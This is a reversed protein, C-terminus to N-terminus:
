LHAHGTNSLPSWGTMIHARVSVADRTVLSLFCFNRQRPVAGWRLRVLPPVKRLVYKGVTESDGVICLHRKPRTMAVACGNDADERVRANHTCEVPFSPRMSTKGNLRRKEGLFGVEHDANSRVLSVIVAEKERGQFGDVSGLEIGPYAEKLM